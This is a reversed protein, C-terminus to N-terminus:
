LPKVAALPMLREWGFLPTSVRLILTAQRRKYEAGEVTKLVWRVTEEEYGRQVIERAGLGEDLYAKLIGDLIEYPPLSDEDRQNPRLEASPPKRITNWPILEGNRNIYEALQYVTTKYIDALVALGGCMDGYLTCYGVALESKNSNALVLGGFKNSLAMLLNGRLRAQINEEAVNMETGTFQVELSSLMAQYLDTIPLVNFRIGLNHALAQADQVSGPSSFPGPQALGWVREPGVAAAAICAAVASDIGGSLGIIVQKMKCKRLYDRLGLVLAQYILAPESQEEEPLANESFNLEVACCATEFFPLRALINGAADWVRSAGAFILGDNGGVQGVSAIPMGKAKALQALTQLRETEEGVRFPVARPNLVLSVGAAKLESALGETLELGVAIAITQDQLSFIFSDQAPKFYREEPFFRFSTLTRKKQVGLIEGERIVVAANFLEEGELWPTGVVLTPVSYQRMLEQLELIGEEVKELFSKRVLLDCPPYGTVFLEPFVILDAEPNAQVVQHVRLLNGQVDGVTPNEQALVINM